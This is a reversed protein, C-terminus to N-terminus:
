PRYKKIFAIHSSNCTVCHLLLRDAGHLQVNGVLRGTYTLALPIFYYWEDLFLFLLYNIIIYYIIYNNQFYVYIKSLFVNAPVIWVNKKLLILKQVANRKVFSNYENHHSAGVTIQHDKQLLTLLTWGCRNQCLEFNKIILWKHEIYKCLYKRM